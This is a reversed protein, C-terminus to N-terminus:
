RKGLYETIPDVIHTRVADRSDRDASFEDFSVFSSVLDVM